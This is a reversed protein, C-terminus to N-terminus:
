IDINKDEIQFEENNICGIKVNEGILKKIQRLKKEDNPGMTNGVLKFYEEMKEPNTMYTPNNQVWAHIIHIQKKSVQEISKDISGHENDKEWKNDKKVYFQLRKQDSCHIPRETVDMDNLNKIFIKSIGEVYGENNTFDLDKLSLQMNKVFDKLTMANKCKENLFLNISVHQQYKQNNNVTTGLKLNQIESRLEKNEEVLHTLLKEVNNNPPDQINSIMICKKQHRSLGSKYVFTKGCHCARRNKNGNTVMKNGNTVMKKGNHKITKIHQSWHSKKVCTYDCKKCNFIVQSKKVIKTM